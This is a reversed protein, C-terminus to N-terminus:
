VEWYRAESVAMELIAAASRRYWASSCSKARQPRIRWTSIRKVCVMAASTERSRVPGVSWHEALALDGIFREVAHVTVAGDIVGRNCADECQQQSLDTSGARSAGGLAPLSRM